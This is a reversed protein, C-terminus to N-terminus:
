ERAFNKFGKQQRLFRFVIFDVKKLGTITEKNNLKKHEFTNECSSLGISGVGVMPKRLNSFPFEYKPCM